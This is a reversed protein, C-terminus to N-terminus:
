PTNVLKKEEKKEEEQLKDTLPSSLHILKKSQKISKKKLVPINKLTFNRLNAFAELHFKMIEKAMDEDDKVLEVLQELYDKIKFAHYKILDVIKINTNRYGVGLQLNLAKGYDLLDKIAIENDRSSEIKSIKSQTCGLKEALQKQTLNHECRLTFLFKAIAKNELEKLADKKFEKDVSLGKVMEEVNKFHKAM